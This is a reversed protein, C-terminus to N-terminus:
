QTPMAKFSTEQFAIISLLALGKKLSKNHPFDTDDQRTSGAEKM